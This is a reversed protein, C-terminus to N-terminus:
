FGNFDFVFFMPNKPICLELMRCLKLEFSYLICFYNSAHLKQCTDQGLTNEFTLLFAQIM